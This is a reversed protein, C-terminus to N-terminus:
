ITRGDDLKVLPAAFAEAEHVALTERKLRAIAKADRDDAAHQADAAGYISYFRSARDYGSTALPDSAHRHGQLSEVRSDQLAAHADARAATDGERELLELAERVRDQELLLAVREAVCTQSHNENTM